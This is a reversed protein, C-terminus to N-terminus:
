EESRGVYRELRGIAVPEMRKAIVCQAECQHEQPCVRGCVSPLISSERIVGLAGDVDKVLLHRIFRPIDIEVPCGSICTPRSCQL